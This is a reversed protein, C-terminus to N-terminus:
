NDSSILHSCSEQNDGSGKESKLLIIMKFTGIGGQYEFEGLMSELIGTIHELTGTIILM